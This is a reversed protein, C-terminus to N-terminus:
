YAQKVLLTAHAAEIDDCVPIVDGIGAELLAQRVDRNASCIAINGGKKAQLRANFVLAGMSALSVFDVGALDVIVLAKRNAVALAFCPGIEGLGAVDLRGNLRIHVVGDYLVTSDLEM